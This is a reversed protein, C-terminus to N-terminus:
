LGKWAVKALHDTKKKSHKVFGLFRLEALSQYFLAQAAERSISIGVEEEEEGTGSGGGGEGVNSGGVVSYFASWLDFTNILPGSELYLKYLISTTPMSPLISEGSTYQGTDASETENPDTCCTCGLYDQPRSLAREIAHRSRPAFVDRHPALLDYFFVENLLVEALGRLGRAFYAEFEDCILQVLKGYEEEEKTLSSKKESLQVRKSVVTARVNDAVSLGFESNLNAKKSEEILEAVRERLPILRNPLDFSPINNDNDHAAGTDEDEELATVKDILGLLNASGMKRISLLLDRVIPSAELEGLLAKSYLEHRPIRNSQNAMCGRAVELVKLTQSLNHTYDRCESCATLIASKVYDDDELLARVEITDEAELKDEVFRRFSPLNRVAEVHEPQLISNAEDPDNLFALFVSLPNAYFHSMYAYKLAAVFAQISQTHDKQRALLFTSLSPGLRLISDTGITADNFIKALCEEAREVDFKEGRMLRLISKPVKEHFIEVSTAVGLLLVFPIRDLYASFLSVLDSLIGSDFADTDQVAVTVKMGPREFCWNQLIQLDYNLLKPGGQQKKGTPVDDEDDLGQDEQTADRILKKLVGKLNSADKSSLEVVPGIKEDYQIRTALQSFLPGHSAINPGVLIVATPIKGDYREPAANRVFNSVESMMKENVSTLIANTRGEQEEWLKNYSQWRLEVAELSENGDFLRPFPLTKEAGDEVSPGKEQAIAAKSKQRGGKGGSTRRRKPARQAEIAASTAHPTFVYCGLHEQPDYDVGQAEHAAASAM